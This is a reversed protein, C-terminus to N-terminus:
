PASCPREEPTARITRAHGLAPVKVVRESTLVQGEQLVPPVGTPFQEPQLHPKVGPAPDRTMDMSPLVLSDLNQRPRHGDAHPAVLTPEPDPLCRLYTTPLHVDHAVSARVLGAEQQLDAGGTAHLPEHAAHEREHPRQM